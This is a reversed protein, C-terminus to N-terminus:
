MGTSSPANSASAAPAIDNTVDGHADLAHFSYLFDSVAPDSPGYNSIAVVQYSRGGVAFVRLTAFPKGGKSIQVERGMLNEFTAVYTKGEVQGGVGKAFHAGLYDSLGDLDTPAQSCECATVVFDDDHTHAEALFNHPTSGDASAPEDKIVPPTQFSAKFGWSPYVYEKVPLRAPRCAAIAFATLIVAVVPSVRM